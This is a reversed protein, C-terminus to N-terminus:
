LSGADWRRLAAVAAIVHEADVGASRVLSPIRGQMWRDVNAQALWGLGVLVDIPGVSRGEDLAADAIRQVRTEVTAM